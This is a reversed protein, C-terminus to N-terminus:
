KVMVRREMKIPKGVRKGMWGVRKRTIDTDVTNATVMVTVTVTATATATTTNIVMNQDMKRRMRLHNNFTRMKLPNNLMESLNNMSLSNMYQNKISKVSQNKSLNLNKRLNSPNVVKEKKTSRNQVPIQILEQNQNGKLNLGQNQSAKLSRSRVKVKLNTKM